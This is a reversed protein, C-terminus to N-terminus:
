RSEPTPVSTVTVSQGAGPGTILKKGSTATQPSLSVRFAAVGLSDGAGMNSRQSADAFSRESSSCGAALAASLIVTGFLIRRFTAM